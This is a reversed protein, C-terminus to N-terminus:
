YEQDAFSSKTESIHFRSYDCDKSREKCFTYDRSILPKQIKSAFDTKDPFCIKEAHFLNSDNVHDFSINEKNTLGKKGTINSKRRPQRFAKTISKFFSKFASQKAKFNRYLILGLGSGPIPLGFVQVELVPVGLVPTGFVM